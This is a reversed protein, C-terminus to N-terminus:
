INLPNSIEKKLSINYINDSSKEIYFDKKEINEKELISSNEIKVQNIDAKLFSPNISNNNM